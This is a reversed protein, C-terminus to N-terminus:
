DFITEPLKEPGTVDMRIEGDLKKSTSKGQSRQKVISLLPCRAKTSQLFVELSLSKNGEVIFIGAVGHVVDAKAAERTVPWLM